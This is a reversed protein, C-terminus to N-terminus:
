KSGEIRERVVQYQEDLKQMKEIAVLRAEATSLFMQASEHTQKFGQYAIWAEKAADLNWRMEEVVGIAFLAKAHLSPDKEGALTCTTRLTVVADDYRAMKAQTFGIYYYTIPEGPSMQKAVEYATLAGQFDGKMYMDHGNVLKGQYTLPTGKVQPATAQQGTPAAQEAPVIQEAPTEVGVDVSVTQAWAAVPLLFFGLVAMKRIM